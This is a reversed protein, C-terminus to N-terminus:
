RKRRTLRWVILLGVGALVFPVYQGLDGAGGANSAIEGAGFNVNWGSSNFGSSTSAGASSPGAAGGQLGGGFLQALPNPTPAPVM